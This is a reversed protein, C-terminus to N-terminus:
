RNGNEYIQLQLLQVGFRATNTRPQKSALEVSSVSIMFASASIWLAILIVGFIQSSLTENNQEDSFAATGGRRAEEERARGPWPSTAGLDARTKEEERKAQRANEIRKWRTHELHM